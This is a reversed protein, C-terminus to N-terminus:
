FDVSATQVLSWYENAYRRGYNEKDQWPLVPYEGIHTGVTYYWGSNPDMWTWSGGSTGASTDISATLVFPDYEWEDGGPGIYGNAWMGCLEPWGTSGPCTGPYGFVSLPTHDYLESIYMNPWSGNYGAMWAPNDTDPCNSFDMVAMDWYDDSNNLWENYMWVVYCDFTGWPFRKNADGWANQAGPAIFSPNSVNNPDFDSWVGNLYFCHGASIATHDGISVGSCGSNVFSLALYSNYPAYMNLLVLYRDDTGLVSRGTQGSPTGPPALPMMHPPGPPHSQGKGINARMSAARNLDPEAEIYEYGDILTVLRTADAFAALSMAAVRKPESPDSAPAQQSSTQQPTLTGSTTARFTAPGRQVLRKGSVTLEAPPAGARLHRTSTPAGSTGDDCASLLLPVMFVVTARLRSVRIM